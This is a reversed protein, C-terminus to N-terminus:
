SDDGGDEHQWKRMAANYERLMKLKMLAGLLRMWLRVLGNVEHKMEVAVEVANHIAKDEDNM